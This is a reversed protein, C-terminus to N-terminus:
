KKQTIVETNVWLKETSGELRIICYGIRVSHVYVIDNKYLYKLDGNMLMKDLAKKDGTNVCDIMIDFSEKSTAVFIVDRNVYFRNGPVTQESPSPNNEKYSNSNSCNRILIFVIIALLILIFCGKLSQGLEPKVENESKSSIRTKLKYGCNFCEQANNAVDKKCRPCWILHLDKLNKLSFEFGCYICKDANKVNNKQCNPCKVFRVNYSNTTPLIFSCYICKELRGLTNRHCNPCEVLNLLDSTDEPAIKYGCFTCRESGNQIENKCNPCSIINEIKDENCSIKTGCHSCFQSGDAITEKCKPCVILFM